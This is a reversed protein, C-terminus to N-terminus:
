LFCLPLTSIDRRVILVQRRPRFFFSQQPCIFQENLLAESCVGESVRAEFSDAMFSLLLVYCPQFRNVTNPSGDGARMRAM